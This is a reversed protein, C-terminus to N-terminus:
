VTKVSYINGKDLGAGLEEIVCNFCAQNLTWVCCNGCEEYNGKSSQQKVFKSYCKLHYKGEAAVLDSIGALRYQLHLNNKSGKLIKGSAELTQVQSLAGLSNQCFM